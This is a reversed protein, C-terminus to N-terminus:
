KNKISKIRKSNFKACGSFKSHHNPKRKFIFTEYNINEKYKTKAKFTIYELNNQYEYGKQNFEEFAEKVFIDIDKNKIAEEFVKSLSISELAIFDSSFEELSKKYNDSNLIYIAEKAYLKKIVRGYLLKEVTEGGEKLIEKKRLKHKKFLKFEREPTDFYEVKSGFFLFASSTHGWEHQIDVKNFARSVMKEMKTNILEPIENTLKRPSFYMVFLDKHSLATFDQNFNPFQFLKIIKDEKFISQKTKFLKYQLKELVPSILFEEWFKDGDKKNFQINILKGKINYFESSSSLLIDKSSNVDFLNFHECVDKIIYNDINDLLKVENKYLCNDKIAYNKEPNENEIYNKFLFLNYSEIDYQTNIIYYYYLKIFENTITKNEIKRTISNLSM